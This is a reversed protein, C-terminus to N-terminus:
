AKITLGDAAQIGPSIVSEGEANPTAAERVDNGPIRVVIITQQLLCRARCCVGGGIVKGAEIPQWPKRRPM